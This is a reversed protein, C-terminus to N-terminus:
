RKRYNRSFMLGTLSMLAFFVFLAMNVGYAVNTAAPNEPSVDRYKLIFDRGQGVPCYYGPPFLSPDTALENSVTSANQYMPFAAMAAGYQSPDTFNSPSSSINAIQGALAGNGAILAERVAGASADTGASFANSSMIRVGEWFASVQVANGPNGVFTKNVSGVFGNAVPGAFVASPILPCQMIYNEMIQWIVFQLTWRWYNIDAIWRLGPSLTGLAAQTGSFAYFILGAAWLATYTQVLSKSWASWAQSVATALWMQVLMMPYIKGFDGTAFGAMFYIIIIQITTIVVNFLGEIILYTLWFPVTGYFATDLEQLYLERDELFQPVAAVAVFIPLFGFTSTVSLRNRIGQVDNQLNYFLGGFLLGLATFMFLRGWSTSPNRWYRLLCRHGVLAIQNYWPREVIYRSYRVSGYQQARLRHIEDMNAAALPSRDYYQSAALANASIVDLYHEIPNQLRPTPYGMTTFYSEAAAVPGFYCTRGECILLTNDFLRFVSEAPQHIVIVVCVNEAKVYKLVLEMTFRAGFDDLGSTPEDLFLMKPRAIMETAVETRKKEGSSVGRILEDGVPTNQANTLKLGAIVDDVRAIREEKTSHRPMRCEAAFMLTERVTMTPIHAMMTTIQGLRRKFFIDPKQGNVLIEGTVDGLSKRQSLIDLLTTKGAGSPGIIALSEGPRAFGTSDILSHVVKKTGFLGSSKLRCNVDTWTVTYGQHEDAMAEASYRAEAAAQAKADTM